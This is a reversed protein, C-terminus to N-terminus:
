DWGGNFVLSHKQSVLITQFFQKTLKTNNETTESKGTYIDMLTQVFAKATLRQSPSEM